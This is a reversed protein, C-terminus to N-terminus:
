QPGMSNSTSGKKKPTKNSNMSKTTTKKKDFNNYFDNPCGIKKNCSIALIAVCLLYLINKKM